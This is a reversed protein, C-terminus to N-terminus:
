HCNELMMTTGYLERLKEEVKFFDFKFIFSSSGDGPNISFILEVYAPPRNNVDPLSDLLIHLYEIESLTKPLTIKYGISTNHSHINYEGEENPHIDYLGDVLPIVDFKKNHNNSFLLDIWDKPVTCRYTHYKCRKNAVSICVKNKMKMIVTGNKIIITM